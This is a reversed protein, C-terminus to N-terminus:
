DRGDPGVDCQLKDAPAASLESNANPFLKRFREIDYHHTADHHFDTKFESWTTWVQDGCFTLFMDTVTNFWAFCDTEPMVDIEKSIPVYRIM